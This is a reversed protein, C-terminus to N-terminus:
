PNRDLCGTFEPNNEEAQPIILMKDTGFLGGKIYAGNPYVTNEDRGFGGQATPRVLRRMDALRHGTMFLWFARERFMLDERAAQAGPDTLAPLLTGGLPIVPCGTVQAGSANCPNSPQKFIPFNARMYNLKGLWNTVDGARLFAEAELLRAEGGTVIAADAERTPFVLQVYFPGAILGPGFNNDFSITRTQGPDFARCATSGGVCAPVRPDNATAFNLGVTGDREGLVYRGASNNLAWIQNDTTAVSHFSFFRFADPVAAVATAAEAYQGLNMLSRGKGVAALNRVTDSRAQGAPTNMVATDFSGIARAYVQANTEPEGYVINNSEDLFSIPTGNCFNEALMNEAYGRVWYMQGVSSLQTPVYQRLVPIAQVSATRLRNVQRAVETMGSNTTQISRQDTQDRQVFTDGSRLEDTLTGGYFFAGEGLSGGTFGSTANNLRALAGVRLAEAAAASNLASPNIVDPDVIDLIRDRDCSALPLVGATLALTALRRFRARDFSIPM